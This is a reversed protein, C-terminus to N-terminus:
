LDTLGPSPLPFRKYGDHSCLCKAEEEGKLMAYQCLFYWEPVIHGDRILLKSIEVSSFFLNSVAKPIRSKKDPFANHLNFDKGVHKQFM